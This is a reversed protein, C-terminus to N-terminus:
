AWPWGGQGARAQQPLQWEAPYDVRALYLGDAMFTPASKGRDRELLLEAIWAPAQKGQGVAILAGVINRVM